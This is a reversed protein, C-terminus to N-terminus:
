IGLDKAGGKGLRKGILITGDEVRIGPDVECKLLVCGSGISAGDRIKAPGHIVAGDGIHVGSGIEIGHGKLSHFVVGKGIKANAGIVIPFGEDGRISARDGVEAQGKFEVDGIVRVRGLFKAKGVKPFAPAGNWSTKPSPSIDGSPGQMSSYLDVYGLALESNVELVEEKFATMEENVSGAPCRGGPPVYSGEELIANEIVAGHGIFCGPKLESNRIRANFGIFTFDGVVSSIVEARHAVSVLSGLSSPGVVRAGDQINTGGGITVEGSVEVFPAIYIFDGGMRVKDGLIASPDIFSNSWIRSLGASEM